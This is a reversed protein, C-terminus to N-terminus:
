MNSYINMSPDHSKRRLENSQTNRHALIKYDDDDKSRPPLVCVYPIPEAVTIITRTPSKSATASSNSSVMENFHDELETDMSSHQQHQLLMIERNTRSTHVLAASEPASNLLCIIIATSDADFSRVNQQEFKRQIWKFCQLKHNM